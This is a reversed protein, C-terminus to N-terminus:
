RAREAHPICTGNTAQKAIYNPSTPTQRYEKQMAKETRDWEARMKDEAELCEHLSNYVLGTQMPTTGFVLVVLMWKM